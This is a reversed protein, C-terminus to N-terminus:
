PVLDIAEILSFGANGTGGDTMEIEGQTDDALRFVTSAFRLGVQDGVNLGTRLGPEIAVGIQGSSDSSGGYMAQYLHPVSGPIGGSKVQLLDGRRLANATSVPFGKLKIYRDGASAVAAVYVDPPLYGNAFGTGDTFRTGDSFTSTTATLHRDYWPALRSTDALRLLGAQGRLRAFFADFDMRMPDRMPAMTVDALWLQAFPGKVSRAAVAFRNAVQSMSRLRYKQSVIFGPKAGFADGYWESPFDYVAVM